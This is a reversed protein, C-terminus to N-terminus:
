FGNMMYYASNVASEEPVVIENYLYKVNTEALTYSYHISAGRRFFMVTKNAITLKKKQLSTTTLMLQLDAKRFHTIEGFTDGTKSIGQIDVRM